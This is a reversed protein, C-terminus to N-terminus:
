DHAQAETMLMVLNDIIHAMCPYTLEIFVQLGLVLSKRKADACLVRQTAADLTRQTILPKKTAARPKHRKLYSHM